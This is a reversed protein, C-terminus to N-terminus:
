APRLGIPFYARADHHLEVVKFGFSEWRGATPEWRATDRYSVLAYFHSEPERQWNHTTEAHRADTELSFTCADYRLMDLPFHSNGQVVFHIAHTRKEKTNVTIAM